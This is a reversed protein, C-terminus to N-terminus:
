EHANEAFVDDGYNPLITVLLRTRPDLLTTVYVYASGQFIRMVTVDSSQRTHAAAMRSLRDRQFFPLDELRVGEYYARRAATKAARVPLGVREKFRRRAHHTLRIDFPEAASM